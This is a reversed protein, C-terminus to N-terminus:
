QLTSNDIEREKQHNHFNRKKYLKNNIKNNNIKKNNMQNNNM